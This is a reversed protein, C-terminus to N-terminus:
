SIRRITAATAERISREHFGSNETAGTSAASPSVGRSIQFVAHRQRQLLAVGVIGDSGCEGKGEVGRLDRDGGPDGIHLAGDLRMIIGGAHHRGEARDDLMEARDAAEGALCELEVPAAATEKEVAELQEELVAVARDHIGPSHVGVVAGEPRLIAPVHRHDAEMRVEAVPEEDREVADVRGLPDLGGDLLLRRLFELVLRDRLVEREAHHARGLLPGRMRDPGFHELTREDVELSRAAFLLPEKALRLVPREFPHPHHLQRMDHGPRVASPEKGLLPGVHDLHLRRHAVPHQRDPHIGAPPLLVDEEVDLPPTALSAEVLEEGRGVDEDVALPRAHEVAHPEVVRPQPRDIRIEDAGGEGAERKACGPPLPRAEFLDGLGDTARDVDMGGAHLRRRDHRREDVVVDGAIEHRDAHHRAQSLPFLAAAKVVDGRGERPARRQRRKKELPEVGFEVLRHPHLVEDLMPDILRRRGPDEGPDRRSHLEAVRRRVDIAM